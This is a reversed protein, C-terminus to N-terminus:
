YRHTIRRPLYKYGFIEGGYWENLEFARKAYAEAQEITMGIYKHRIISAYDRQRKQGRKSHLCDICQNRGPDSNDCPYEDDRHCWEECDWCLFYNSYYKLYIKQKEKRQKKSNKRFQKVLIAKTIKLM